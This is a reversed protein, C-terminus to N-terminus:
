LKTNYDPEITVLIIQPLDGSDLKYSYCIGCEIDSTNTYDNNTNSSEIQFSNLLNVSLSEQKNWAYSKWKAKLDQVRNSSGFFRILGPKTNQYDPDLQIHFSCHHGLAIRRWLDNRKPHEPEIIRMHKDLDDLSDFLPQYKNIISEHEELVQYLYPKPTMEKPLDSSIQAPVFPYENSLSVRLLHEREGKDRTVFVIENMTDSMSHIRDFGIRTLEAYISTYRGSSYNFTKVTKELPVSELIEKLETLFSM